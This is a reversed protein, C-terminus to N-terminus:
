CESVTVAAAFLSLVYYLGIAVLRPESDTGAFLPNGTVVFLFANLILLSTNFIIFWVWVKGVVSPPMRM